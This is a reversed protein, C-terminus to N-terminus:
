CQFATGRKRVMNKGGGAFGTGDSSIEVLGRQVSREKEERKGKKSGPTIDEQCVYCRVAGDYGEEHASREAAKQFKDSCPKCLVHGCPKALVAKTSNSLAKDCSPCTRTPVDPDSTTKDSRFHVDVLLKLSFDHPDEPTAAPCTPHQKPPKSAAKHNTPTQSPIWFSPLDKGQPDTFERRRSKAMDEKGLRALEEEDLEFKRKAGRAGNDGGTDQEVIVKGEGRGVIRSEGAESRVSLGAQVREFEDVARARAEEGEAEREGEDELRRREAERKGRKLEKSQALLNSM